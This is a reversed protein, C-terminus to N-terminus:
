KAGKRALVVWFTKWLIILDDWFRWHDIYKLDLRVVDNFHTIKNRGSVQWLGTIGPKM